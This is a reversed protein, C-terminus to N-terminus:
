PGAVESSSDAAEYVTQGAVVTRLVPLTPLREPPVRRPDAALVVFDAWAGPRLVGLRDEAFIAYAADRTYAVLAEEVSIKQEPVWGDPHRGDLTRRTAAAYLGLRPDPPAVFWDSGFALRAGADRLSRFAYTTRAREAGIVSDAWRGDDIAHYPQMSPIVGLAAFRPIDQPRLHQAHEIRFRRDRPGHTRLLREYLDLVLTNAADGIAHIAVQLGARDAGAIWAALSDTPTVQLGRTRPDDTYPEHFLATHSGLSGDAFGKLLGLRLWDDGRGRAAITDRLRAWTALPVAAVIRTRLRGAAHARRFVALDDWTGMHVVTTVGFRAVHAMAAELARDLQAPSPDPVARDVLAMANDKLVGTPEGQADRVIEGGPVDPTSRDIGARRLALTNALAMHGDLRRVWVPHEPTVSDIWRRDPLRGGWLTHDWDGGLIWTGPPLRQAAARIRAVFEEPTRADRLQVSLLALGGALFHVHSDIFGPSVFGGAVDLVTTAPGRWREVDARRGVAVVRGHRVALAEAEPAAPDGTWVTGGIVLLDAMPRPTVPACAALAVAGLFAAIRRM